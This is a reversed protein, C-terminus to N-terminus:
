APTTATVIPTCGHNARNFIAPLRLESAPKAPHVIIAPAHVPVGVMRRPRLMALRQFPQLRMDGMLAVFTQCPREGGLLAIPDKPFVALVDGRMALHALALIAGCRRGVMISRMRAAFTVFSTDMRAVENPFGSELVEGVFDFVACVVTAFLLPVGLEGGLINAQDTLSQGVTIGARIEAFEEVYGM